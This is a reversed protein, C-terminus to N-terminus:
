KFTQIVQNDIRELWVNQNADWGLSFQNGDTLSQLLTTTQLQGRTQRKQYCHVSAEMLLPYLLMYKSKSPQEATSLKSKDLEDSSEFSSAISIEGLSSKEFDEKSSRTLRLKFFNM